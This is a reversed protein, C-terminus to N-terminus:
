HPWAHRHQGAGGNRGGGTSCRARWIAPRACWRASPLASCFAKARETVIGILNSWLIELEVGDM